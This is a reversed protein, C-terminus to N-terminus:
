NMTQDSHLTTIQIRGECIALPHNVTFTETSGPASVSIQSVVPCEDGTSWGVQFWAEGKPSLTVEAGQPTAATQLEGQALQASLTSATIHDVVVSAVPADNQDLLAISPYGGLKCPEAGLNNFALKIARYNGNVAAAIETVSLKSSDCPALLSADVVPRKVLQPTASAVTYPANPNTGGRSRLPADEQKLTPANGQLAARSSRSCGEWFPLVVLLGGALAFTALRSSRSVMYCGRLNTVLIFTARFDNCHEIFLGREPCKKGPM